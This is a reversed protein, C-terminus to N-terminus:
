SLEGTSDSRELATPLQEGDGEGESEGTVLVVVSRKGGGGAAAEKSLDREMDSSVGGGMMPELRRPLKRKSILLRGGREQM